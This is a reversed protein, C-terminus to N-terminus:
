VEKYKRKMFLTADKYMWDQLVQISKKSTYRLYFTSNNGTKSKHEYIKNRKLNLVQTIIDQIKTVFYENGVISWDVRSKKGIHLCGDGDFYGRIFHRYLQTPIIPVKCSFTKNKVCGIEQIRMCLHKSHLNIGYMNKSKSGKKRVDYRLPLDESICDRLNELIEKDDESLRLSVTNREPSVTGDAYLFGLFYAKKESNIEDFFTEDINYKRQLSSQNTRTTAM